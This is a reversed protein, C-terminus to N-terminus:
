VFAPRLTTRVRADLSASYPKSPNYKPQSSYFEAPSPTRSATSSGQSLSLSSSSSSSSSPSMSRHSRGGAYQGDRSGGRGMEINGQVSRRIHFQSSFPRAQMEDMDGYGEDSLSSHSSPPSPMPAYKRQSQYDSDPIMERAYPSPRHSTMGPHPGEAYAFNSHMPAPALPRLDTTGHISALHPQGRSAGLHNRYHRRM